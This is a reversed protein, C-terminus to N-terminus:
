ACSSRGRTGHGRLETQSVPTGESQSLGRMVAEELGSIMQMKDSGPPQKELLVQWECPSFGIVMVSLQKMLVFKDGTEISEKGAAKAIDKKVTADLKDYLDRLFLMRPPGELKKAGAMANKALMELMFLYRKCLKENSYLHVHVGARVIAFAAEIREQKYEADSRACLADAGINREACVREFEALERKYRKADASAADM